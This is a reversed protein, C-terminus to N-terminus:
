PASTLTIAVSRSDLETGDGALLQLVYTAPGPELTGTCSNQNSASIGFDVVTRGSQAAVGTGGAACNVDGQYIVGQLIGSFDAGPNTIVSRYGTGGELQISTSELTLSAIRAGGLSVLTPTPRLGGGGQAIQGDVNTGWCYIETVTRGCAHGLGAVISQFALPAGGGPGVVSAPTSRDTFDGTGLQGASNDGWCSAAGGAALACTALGGGDLRVFAANALLTPVLRDTTTGDGLQGDANAGWCYTANGATVACTHTPGVPSGGAALAIFRHGGSVPAPMM